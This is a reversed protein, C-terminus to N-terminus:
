FGYRRAHGIAILGMFVYACPIAVILVIIQIGLTLLTLMMAQERLNSRIAIGALLALGHIGALTIWTFVAGFGGTVSAGIAAGVSFEIANVLVSIGLASSITMTATSFEPNIRHVLAAAARLCVALGPVSFLLLFIIVIIFDKTIGKRESAAAQQMREKEEKANEVAKRTLSEIQREKEKQRREPAAKEWAIAAAKEEAKTNRLSHHRAWYGEPPNAYFCVTHSARQNLSDSLELTITVPFPHDTPQQQTLALVQSEWVSLKEQLLKWELDSLRQVREEHVTMSAPGNWSLHCHDGEVKTSFFADRISGQLDSMLNRTNRVTYPPVGGEIELHVESIGAGDLIMPLETLRFRVPVPIEAPLKVENRILYGDYVVLAWRSSGAMVLGHDYRRAQGIRSGPTTLIDQIDPEGDKWHPYVGVSLTGTEAVEDYASVAALSVPSDSLMINGVARRDGFDPQTGPTTRRLEGRVHFHNNGQYSLSARGPAILLLPKSLSHDYVVGERFWGFPAPAVFASPIRDERIPEQGVRVQPIVFDLKQLTPISRREVVGEDVPVDKFVDGGDPNSCYVERDAFLEFDYIEPHTAM